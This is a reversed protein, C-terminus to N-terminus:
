TGDDNLLTILTSFGLEQVTLEFSENSEPINDELTVIAM